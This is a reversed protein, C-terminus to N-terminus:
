KDVMIVVVVELSRVPELWGSMWSCLLPCRVASVDEQVLYSGEKNCGSPSVDCGTLEAVDSVFDDLFVELFVM